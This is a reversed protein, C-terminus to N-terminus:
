KFVILFDNCSEPEKSFNEPFLQSLKRDIKKVYMLVSDIKNNEKKTLKYNTSSTTLVIKRKKKLSQDDNENIKRKKKLSQDDNEDRIESKAYFDNMVTDDSDSGDNTRSKIGSIM